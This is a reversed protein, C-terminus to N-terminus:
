KQYIAHRGVSIFLVDSNKMVQFIIRYGRDISISWLGHLRGGLKHLQLSPHFPNKRFITEQKFAKKKIFQPLFGFQKEFQKNHYIARIKM